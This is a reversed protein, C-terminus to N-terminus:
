ELGLLDVSVPGPAVGAADLGRGELPDVEEVRDSGVLVEVVQGGRGILRKVVTM